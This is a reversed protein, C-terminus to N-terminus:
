IEILHNDAMPSLLPECQYSRLKRRNSKRIRKQDITTSSEVKKPSTTIILPTKTKERKTGSTNVADTTSIYSVVKGSLISSPPNQEVQPINHERPFDYDVAANTWVSPDCALSSNGFSQLLPMRKVKHYSQQRRLSSSAKMTHNKMSDDDHSLRHFRLVPDMTMTSMTDLSHVSHDDRNGTDSSAYKQVIDLDVVQYINQPLTSCAKAPSRRPKVTNKTPAITSTATVSLREQMSSASTQTPVTGPTEQDEAIKEETHSEDMSDYSNGNSKTISGSTSSTASSRDITVLSNLLADTIHRGDSQSEVVVQKSSGWKKLLWLRRRPQYKNLASRQQQQQQLSYCTAMNPDIDLSVNMLSDYLDDVDTTTDGSKM